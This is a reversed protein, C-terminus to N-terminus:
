VQLYSDDDTKMFYDMCPSGSRSNPDYATFYFVMHVDASFSRTGSSGFREWAVGRGPLGEDEVGDVKSPRPWTRVTVQGGGAEGWGIDPVKPYELQLPGWFEGQQRGTKQRLQLKVARRLRKRKRGNDDRLRRRWRWGKARRVHEKTYSRLSRARFDRLLHCATQLCNTVPM